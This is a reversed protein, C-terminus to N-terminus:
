NAAQLGCYAKTANLILNPQPNTNISSDTTLTLRSDAFTVHGNSVQLTKVKGTAYILSKLSIVIICSFSGILVRLFLFIFSLSGILAHIEFM